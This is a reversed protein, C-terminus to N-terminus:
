RARVIMGRVLGGVGARVRDRASRYTATGLQNRSGIRRRMTRAVDHEDFLHALEGTASPAEALRL